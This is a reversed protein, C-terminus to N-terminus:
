RKLSSVFNGVKKILDSKSANEKIKRVIASGVIVGDAVKQIQKVQGPASVGFGVCVPKATLKKIIKLNAILDKPLSARAGTVGTLSVYYIFGRAAKAIYNIRQKSTTPAIFFIVDVGYKRTSKVFSSGEEPPLDPVIVGDVGSDHALRAFKEEGFCFIPNYYTMLCIPVETKQRARKVLSLIKDLNTNNKLALQSADQIVPGDAMPDSFPVGLEIIDVGIRSFELVLKETTKLDPFGATVFAIFAKKRKKKLEKFKAEIRNM